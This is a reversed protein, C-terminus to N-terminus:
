LRAEMLPPADDSQEKWDPEREAIRCVPCKVFKGVVHSKVIGTGKCNICKDSEM